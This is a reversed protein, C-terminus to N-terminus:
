QGNGALKAALASAFAEAGALPNPAEPKEDDEDLAVERRLASMSPDLRGPRLVIRPPGDRFARLPLRRLIYFASM